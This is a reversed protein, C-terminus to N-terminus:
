GEREDGDTEAENAAWEYFDFDEESLDFMEGDALLEIDELVVANRAQPAVERPAQSWMTVAMVAIAAAAGAPVWSTWARAGRRQEIEELAAHRAQTLRSRVRGDLHEVSQALLERAREVAPGGAADSDPDHTTNM